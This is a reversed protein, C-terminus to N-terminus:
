EVVNDNIFHLGKADSISNNTKRTILFGTNKLEQLFGSMNYGGDESTYRSAIFAIYNFMDDPKEETYQQPKQTSRIKQISEDALYSIVLAAMLLIVLAIIVYMSITSLLVREPIVFLIASCPVLMILIILLLSKVM